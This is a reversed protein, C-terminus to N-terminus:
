GGWLNWTHRRGRGRAGGSRARVMQGHALRHTRAHEGRGFEHKGPARPLCTLPEWFCRQLHKPGHTSANLQVFAPPAIHRCLKACRVWRAAFRARRQGDVFPSHGVAVQGDCEAVHELSRAQGRRSAVVPHCGQLSPCDAKHAVRYQTVQKEEHAQYQRTRQPSGVARQLTSSDALSRFSDVRPGPTAKAAARADRSREHPRVKRYAPWACACAMYGWNTPQVQIRNHCSPMESRHHQYLSAAHTACSSSM